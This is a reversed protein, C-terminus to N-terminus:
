NAVGEGGGEGKNVHGLRLVQGELLAERSGHELAALALDVKVLGGGFTQEEGRPSPGGRSEGGGSM